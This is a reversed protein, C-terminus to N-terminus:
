EIRRIRKRRWEDLEAPDYLVKAGSKYFPPGKGANRNAAMQELTRHSIPCNNRRLFAAAEKRSLFTNEAAM